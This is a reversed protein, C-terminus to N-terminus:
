SAAKLPQQEIIAEIKLLDPYLDGKTYLCNNLRKEAHIVTTHDRKLIGGTMMHSFRCYKRILYMAMHRCSAIESKRSRSFLKTQTVNFYDKCVEIIELAKKYRMEKQQNTQPITEFV